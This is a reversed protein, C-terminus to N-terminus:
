PTVASDKSEQLQWFVTPTGGREPSISAVRIMDRDLLTEEIEDLTKKKLRLKRATDRRSVQGNVNRLLLIAKELNREFESEGIRQSFRLASDKLRRAVRVAITADEVTVKLPEPTREGTIQIVNTDAGLKAIEPRGVAALIAIKLTTVLLRDFMPKQGEITESAEEEIEAAFEDILKLADHEFEAYRERTCFRNINALWKVLGNRERDLDVVLEYFPKRVPKNEPMVIAFRPLLGTTVDKLTLSDFIAPTTAGLISLYCGNVRDVDAESDGGKKRKSHRRNEWFRKSYLALLLGRLGTMHKAHHLKELMEGFEDVIWVSAQSPRHALVEIFGEPSFQSPLTIQPMARDLLDEGAEIATSKRSTTSTGVILAYLNTALGHPYPALKATLRPTACALDILAIVEHYDYAADTRKAAYEIYSTVFHNEPFAHSFTYSM